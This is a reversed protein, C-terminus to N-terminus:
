LSQIPQTEEKSPLVNFTYDRGDEYIDMVAVCIWTKDYKKTVVSNQNWCNVHSELSLLLDYISYVIRNTEYDNNIKEPTGYDDKYILQKYIGLKDLDRSVKYAFQLDHSMNPKNPTIDHFWKKNVLDGQIIGYGVNEGCGPKCKPSNCIYNKLLTSTDTNNNNFYNRGYDIIKVVYESPFEYVQGNRHYRMKIYQKGEYPKYLFVNKSHLDYHTYKNGLCVLPYYAQYVINIIEGDINNVIKRYEDSFSIFNDFHQILVCLLKNKVCSEAFEDYEFEKINKLNLMSNLNTSNIVNDHLNKWTTEDKIEYCDYTEVFCPFKKIFTNIFYKGVYYEYFLNDAEPDASCKLITYAKYGSKEFPIELIFGNSSPQGIRKIENMKVYSFNRFDDFFTKIIDGYYGLALCNDPNKCAVNLMKALNEQKSHLQLQLTDKIDGGRANRRSFRRSKRNNFKSKTKKFPKKKTRRRSIGM